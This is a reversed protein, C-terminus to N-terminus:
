PSPPPAAPAAKRERLVTGGAVGVGFVYLWGQTFDFLHSNFLSSVVNEVVVMMGIWAVLGSGRFLMAHAVWMAVLIVSGVLGLQIAVAFTQNHPNESAEAALGSEGAASKRFEEAISGTGHGIIPATEVMALSRRLFDLHMATSTIDTSVTGGGSIYAQLDGVSTTLRGRLYPSALAFSLGIICGVLASGVVGKWGFYRWGLLLVLVPAVVLTTRGTIVFAINALLLAALALAGAVWPWGRSRGKEFAWGLLAFACILFEGSQLIYDKVPVGPFYPERKPWPLSPFLFLSWSLVLVGMVSLFFAFLVRTGHKSRRFQALLLAIAVLRLFSEFGVLRERWTVDAWLMGVAALGVLLVPLGGAATALERRIDQPHLSSLAAVLWAVVLIGTASTSWPLSVAVGLALCDALTELNGRNPM